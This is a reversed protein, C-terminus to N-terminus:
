GKDNFIRWSRMDRLLTHPVEEKKDIRKCLNVVESSVNLITYIVNQFGCPIEKFESNLFSEYKATQENNDLDIVRISFEEGGMGCDILKLPLGKLKSYILKRTEINDVGLIYLRNLDIEFDTNEDVKENFANIEIDTFEKIIEKLAVAKPKGIDKIRYFQNPINVEEVTDFDYVDIFNFGLKALTLAIFSGGSGCGFLTIKIRTDFPNFINIQRSFSTKDM